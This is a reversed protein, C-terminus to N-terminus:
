ARLLSGLPTGEPGPEAVPEAHKCNSVSGPGSPVGNPLTLGYRIKGLVNLCGDSRRDEVIAPLITSNEPRVDCARYMGFVFGCRTEFSGPRDM